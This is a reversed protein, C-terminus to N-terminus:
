ENKENKIGIKKKFKRNKLNESLLVWRCNKPYYSKNNDIRDITLDDRYGNALAWTKFALYNNKWENCIKIGKGGYRKYNASNPNYCRSKMDDWIKYLRARRGEKTDGHITMVKKVIEKAIEKQLCGCSKTRGSRLHDGRVEALQGCVCRCLWITSYGCKKGTDSLVTHRGFKQGIMDIKKM